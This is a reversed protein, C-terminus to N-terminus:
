HAYPVGHLAAFARYIQEHLVVRAVEHNLVLSSLRVVRWARARAGPAHGYAGGLAFVLRTAGETRALDVLRTFAETDVDDGREDLVVVRDREGLTKRVREGEALRVADVDGRFPEHRVWAAEVGGWRVCRRAYDDCAQQAWGSSPRGVAVVVVRM